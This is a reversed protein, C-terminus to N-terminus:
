FVSGPSRDEVESALGLFTCGSKGGVEWEKAPAAWWQLPPGEPHGLLSGSFLFLPVWQLVLGTLPWRSTLDEVGTLELFIEKKRKLNFQLKCHQTVKLHAALRNVYIYLFDPSSQLRCSFPPPCLTVHTSPMVSEISM